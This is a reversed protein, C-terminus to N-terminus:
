FGGVVRVFSAPTKLNMFSSPGPNTIRRGMMLSAVRAEPRPAFLRVVSVTINDDIRRGVAVEVLKEAAMEADEYARLESGAIRVVEEPSMVDWLGDTALVVFEDDHKLHQSLLQPEATLGPIKRGGTGTGASSSGGQEMDGFARTVELCGALRGDKLEGGERKVRAREAITADAARHDTTLVCAQGARCLVARCDGCWAFHLCDGGSQMMMVAATAGARCGREMLATECARFGEVLAESAASGLRRSDYAHGEHAVGERAVSPRALQQVISPLLHKQLYASADGGGHGDYVGFLVLDGPRHYMSSEDEQFPCGGCDRIMGYSKPVNLGDLAALMLAEGKRVVSPSTPAAEVPERPCQSGVEVQEVIPEVPWPLKDLSTLTTPTAANSLPAAGTSPEKSLEVSSGTAAARTTGTSGSPHVTAAMDAEMGWGREEGEPADALIGFHGMLDSVGSRKLAVGKFRSDDSRTRRQAFADEAVALSAEQELPEADLADICDLISADGNSLTRSGTRISYPSPRASRDRSGRLPGPKADTM